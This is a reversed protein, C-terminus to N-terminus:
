FTLINASEIAALTVTATATTTWFGYFGFFALEFFICFKCVFIFTSLTTFGGFLATAAAAAALWAELPHSSPPAM